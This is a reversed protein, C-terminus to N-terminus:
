RNESSSGAAIDWPVTLPPPLEEGPPVDTEVADCRILNDYRGDKKDKM